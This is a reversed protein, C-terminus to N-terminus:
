PTTIDPTTKQLTKGHHNHHQSSLQSPATLSSPLTLQVNGNQTAAMRRVRSPTLWTCSCLDSVVYSVSKCTIQLQLAPPNIMTSIVTCRSCCKCKVEAFIFIRWWRKKGKRKLFLKSAKKSLQFRSSGQTGWPNMTSSCHIFHLHPKSASFPHCVM